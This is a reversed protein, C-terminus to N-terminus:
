FIFNCVYIVVLGERYLFFFQRLKKVFILVLHTSVFLSCSLYESKLCLTVEEEGVRWQQYLYLSTATMRLKGRQITFM